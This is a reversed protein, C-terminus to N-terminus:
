VAARRKSRIDPVADYPAPLRYDVHYTTRIVPPDKRTLDSALATPFLPSWHGPFLYLLAEDLGTPLHGAAAITYEHPDRATSRYPSRLLSPSGVIRRKLDAEYVGGKPDPRYRRRLSGRLQELFIPSRELPSRLSRLPHGPLGPAERACLALLYEM